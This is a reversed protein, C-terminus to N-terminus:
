VFLCVFLRRQFEGVSNSTSISIVFRIDTLPVSKAVHLYRSDIWCRSRLCSSSLARDLKWLSTRDDKALSSGLWCVPQTPGTSHGGLDGSRMGM